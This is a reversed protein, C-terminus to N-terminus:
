NRADSEEQLGFWWFSWHGEDDTPFNGIAFYDATAGHSVAYFGKQIRAVNEVVNPLTNEKCQKDSSKGRQGERKTCGVSGQVLTGHGFSASFVPCPRAQAFWCECVCM